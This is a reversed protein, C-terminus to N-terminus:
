TKLQLLGLALKWNRAIEIFGQELALQFAQKSATRSVDPMGSAHRFYAVEVGQGLLLLSSRQNAGGLPHLQHGVNAAVSLGDHEFAPAIQAL